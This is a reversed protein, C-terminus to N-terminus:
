SEEEEDELGRQGRQLAQSLQQDEALQAALVEQVTDCLQVL